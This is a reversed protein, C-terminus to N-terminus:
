IKINTYTITFVVIENASKGLRNIIECVLMIYCHYNNLFGLLKATAKAKM